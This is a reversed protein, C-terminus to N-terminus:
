RKVPSTVLALQDAINRLPLAVAGSLLQREEGHWDEEIIPQQPAPWNLRGYQGHVPDLASMLRLLRESLRMRINPAPFEPLDAPQGSYPAVLKQLDQAAKELLPLHRVLARTGAQAEKAESAYEAVKASIAESRASLVATRIDALEEKAEISALEGATTVAAELATLDSELAVIESTKSFTTGEILSRSREDILTDLEFRKLDREKSLQEYRDKRQGM